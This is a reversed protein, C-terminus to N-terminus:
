IKKSKRKRKNVEKIQKKTPPVGVPLIYEQSHALIKIPQGKKGRIRGGNKFPILENGIVGGSHSGIQRGLDAGRSGAIFKGVANGLKSGAYEGIKKGIHGM